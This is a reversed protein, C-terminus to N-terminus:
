PIMRDIVIVQRNGPSWHIEAAEWFQTSTDLLKSCEGALRGSLFIRLTVTSPVMEQTWAQAGLGGNEEPVASYYHAAVRYPAGVVSTDEPEDLRIDEPGAGNVDDLELIPNGAPGPDGWDPCTNAYFCDDGPSIADHRTWTHEGPRLLHLDVDTGVGDTQDPDSPTNWVLQIHINTNSIATIHVRVLEQPCIESPAVIGLSDEVSLELVYDGVLDIFFFAEPTAENDAPGGNAPHSLNHYHEVPQATSGEPREVVSWRYLLFGEGFGEHISASLSVIEFVSVELEDFIAAVPCPAADDGQDLLDGDTSAGDEAQVLGEDEAQVLDEDEAQVLGGDEFLVPDEQVAADEGSPDSRGLDQAFDVDM